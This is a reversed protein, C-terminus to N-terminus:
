APTTLPPNATRALGIAALNSYYPMIRTSTYLIAGGPLSSADSATWDARATIKRRYQPRGCLLLPLLSLNLAFAAISYKRSGVM